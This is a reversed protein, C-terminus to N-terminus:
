KKCATIRSSSSSSQCASSNQTLTMHSCSSTLMQWPWTHVRARPPLCKNLDHTFMFLQANTLTMHSCFSTLMQWPWTHVCPPSCKYLDHTFVLLHANTLTMHSCSSTLKQWTKISTMQSSSSIIRHITWTDVGPTLNKNLDNTLVLIYMYGNLKYM